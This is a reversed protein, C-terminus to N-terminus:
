AASTKVTQVRRRCARFSIPYGLDVTWDYALGKTLPLSAGRTPCRTWPSNAITLLYVSRADSDKRGYLYWTVPAAIRARRSPPSSALDIACCTPVWRNARSARWARSRALPAGQGAYGRRKGGLWIGLRRTVCRGAVVHGADSCRVSPQANHNKDLDFSIITLSIDLPKRSIETRIFVVYDM